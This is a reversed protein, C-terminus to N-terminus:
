NGDAAGGPRGATPKTVSETPAVARRAVRPDASLYNPLHMEENLWNVGCPNCRIYDSRSVRQRQCFPCPPESGVENLREQRAEEQEKLTMTEIM